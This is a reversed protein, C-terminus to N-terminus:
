NVPDDWRIPINCKRCYLEKFPSMKLLAHYGNNYSFAVFYLYDECKMLKNIMYIHLMYELVLNIRKMQKDIQPHYM